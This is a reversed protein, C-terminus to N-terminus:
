FGDTTGLKARGQAQAPVAEDEDFPIMNAAVSKPAVKKAPTHAPASPSAKAKAKAPSKKLDFAVVNNKAPKETKESKGKAAEKAPSYGAGLIEANLDVVKEQMHKSQKLIEEATAAIEEASSANNQSSQDLSNMAQGVQSIGTAQENSAAAIENNLDAVKKVSTVINNLVTGSRDAIQSGHDVREVSEKILNSIDKAAVASRQALTRVADAVVAFGKGQEGARAAEVAANLALLNTQFAIDDIVTIIEEIKKSSQSIEKMSSILNHIEKEGQEASTRSTQSLAAAQKANDSNMKVMSSMEELSAVTEELSAASATAGQSLSQGASTLQQIAGTVTRGSENLAGAIGGVTRAIRQATWMLLGLLAFIAFASAFVTINLNQSYLDSEVKVNAKSMDEYLKINRNMVETIEFGLPRWENLYIARVKADSEATNKALEDVIQGTIQLFKAKKEKVPAYNKEEDPTFPTSEYTDQHEKYSAVAEKLKGQYETRLEKNDLNAIMIWISNGINFRQANMHGLHDLSPIVDSYSDDLMDDTKKLGHINLASIGVFACIPFIATLLLKGRLGRFWHTWSHM